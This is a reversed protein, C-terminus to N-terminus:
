ATGFTEGDRLKSSRVCISLQVGSDGRVEHAAVRGEEAAEAAAADDPGFLVVGGPQLTPVLLRHHGKFVLVRQHKAVATANVVSMLSGHQLQNCGFTAKLKEHPSGASAREAYM